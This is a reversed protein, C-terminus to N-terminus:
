ALLTLTATVLNPANELFRSVVDQMWAEPADMDTQPDMHDMIIVMQEKTDHLGNLVSYIHLRPCAFATRGCISQMRM